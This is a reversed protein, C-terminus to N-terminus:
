LLTVALEAFNFKPGHLEIARSFAKTAEEPRRSSRLFLGYSTWVESSNPFGELIQRFKAETREPDGERRVEKAEALLTLVDSKNSHIIAETLEDYARGFLRPDQRSYPKKSHPLRRL